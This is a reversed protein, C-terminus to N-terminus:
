EKKIITATWRGDVKDLSWMVIDKEKLGLQEAIHRPVTTRLSKSNSVARSLASENTDLKM